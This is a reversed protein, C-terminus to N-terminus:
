GSVKSRQQRVPVQTLGAAILILIAGSWGRVGLKENLILWGFFVAWVPELTYLVAAHPASVSKQGLTQLWTTAATAALGLYLIARWPVPGIAPHEFGIWAASFVVVIWLHAATLAATPLVATFAELRTIYLAFTIACILTWLDGVNPPSGDNSLLGVGLLAIVAAIWITIRSGRGLMGAFVPVFIVHLSTIFASRGVSTYRLGITQTAFGMWLWVGLEIAAAWLKRGFRLFPSFVIAAILFRALVLASTPFGRLAQKTVVFTTGWIFTALTLILVGRIHHPPNNRHMPKRRGCEVRFSGYAQCGCAFNTGYNMDM